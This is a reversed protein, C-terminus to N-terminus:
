HFPQDANRTKGKLLGQLHQVYFLETIFTILITIGCVRVCVRVCMCVERKYPGYDVTLSMIVITM